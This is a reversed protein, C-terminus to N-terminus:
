PEAQSEDLGALVDLYARVVFEESFREHVRRRAAEGMAVREAFPLEAFRRMADALSSSDRVACLLGNLGDEVVHRCGPVDTAILPRGMAGAELLSRPLGERYSPLVIASARAIFPRVDETPGLYDIVGEAIWADLQLPSIATRHGEDPGGVLQFRAFPMAPRLARAAEVFEVVGKDRVLRAILLFTVPDPPPPTAAFRNLDVGSGPLLRAQEPRVIRREVFLTRDDDNQFFVVPARRFALRSLSTVVQQVPDRRMFANGIGSVNPIAPIGLTAAALSGYINPKVTFGLYAAPRLAALLRRYELLLRLDSWPNLGARDVIIPVREVELERMRKDAAPDQPAVVVPDYGAGRM